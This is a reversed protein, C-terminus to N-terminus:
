NDSGCGCGAGCAGNCTCGACCSCASADTATVSTTIELSHLWVLINMIAMEESAGRFLVRSAPYEAIKTNRYYATTLAVTYAEHTATYYLLKYGSVTLNGKIFQVTVVYNHTQNVEVSYLVQWDEGALNERLTVLFAEAYMAITKKMKGYDPKPPEPEPEVVQIITVNTVENVTEHVVTQNHYHHTDGGQNVTQDVVVNNGNGQVVANQNVGGNTAVQANNNSNASAGNKNGTGAATNNHSSGGDNLVLPQVMCAASAPAIACTLLVLAGIIALLKKMPNTGEKKIYWEM